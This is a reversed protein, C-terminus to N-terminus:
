SAARPILEFAVGNFNVAIEYGATGEKDARPNARVLAPYRKVWPFDTKHAIVRFLETQGRIFNLLNFKDGEAREALLLLRPDLGLLNQGNWDGHDNRQEPNNKKHWQAFRDNVFLNFEFHVHARDKSIGERTNATRGMIAIQEGSKVSQGTKLD